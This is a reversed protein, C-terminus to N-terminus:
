PANITVLVNYDAQHRVGPNLNVCPPSDIARVTVNYQGPPLTIGSADYHIHATV